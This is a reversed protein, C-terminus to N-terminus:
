VTRAAAALWVYSTTCVDRVLSTLCWILKGDNQGVDDFAFFSNRKNNGGRGSTRSRDAGDGRQQPESPPNDPVPVANAQRLWHKFTAPAITNNKNKRLHHLFIFLNCM